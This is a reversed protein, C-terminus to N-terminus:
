RPEACRSAAASGGPSRSPPSATAACTPRGPPSCRRGAAGDPGAASELVAFRWPESHHPAPATLAAAIARRVAAPDVPSPPSSGCRGGSPWCTPRHRAPVHGGRGPRVLAAAGPGDDATVLEPLGRVIAVPIQTTKGKVLDAAAAIEDAVAAM